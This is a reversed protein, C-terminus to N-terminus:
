GVREPEARRQGVPEAAGAAGAGLVKSVYRQGESIREIEVAMVDVSRQLQDLRYTDEASLRTTAAALRRRLAAWLVAGLLLFGVAQSVLVDRLM